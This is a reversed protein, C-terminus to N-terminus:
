PIGILDCYLDALARADPHRNQRYWHYSWVPMGIIAEALVGSASHKPLVDSKQLDAILVSVKTMFERELETIRSQLEPTFSHRERWFVACENQNRLVADSFRRIVNRLKLAQNDSDKIGEEYSRILENAVKIAIEELLLNKSKIYHYVAPQSMQLEAAIEKTTAASFGRRSFIRAASAIIRRKTELFSESDINSPSSQRNPKETQIPNM